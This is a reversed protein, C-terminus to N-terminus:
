PPGQLHRPPTMGGPRRVYWYAFEIDSTGPSTRLERRLTPGLLCCTTTFLSDQSDEWLERLIQHHSDDADILALVAGTDAVIM